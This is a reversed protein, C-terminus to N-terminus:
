ERFMGFERKDCPTQMLHFAAEGSIWTAQERVARLGMRALAKRVAFRFMCRDSEM